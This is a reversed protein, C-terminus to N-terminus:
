SLNPLVESLSLGVFLLAGALFGAAIPDYRHWSASKGHTSAISDILAYGIAFKVGTLPGFLIVIFIGGLIGMDVDGGGRQATSAMNRIAVFLWFALHLGCFAAVFVLWRTLRINM